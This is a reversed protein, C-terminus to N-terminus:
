PNSAAIAQGAGELPVDVVLTKDGGGWSRFGVKLVKGKRIQAMLTENIETISQCGDPMCTMFSGKVEDGEDIRVAIGARLDVGFPLTFVGFMKGKEAAFLVQLLTGPNKEDVSKQTQAARCESPSSPNCLVGWQGYTGKLTWQPARAEPANTALPPVAAESVKPKAAHLPTAVLAAASCLALLVGTSSKTMSMGKKM